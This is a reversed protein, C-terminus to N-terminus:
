DDAQIGGDIKRLGTQLDVPGVPDIGKTEIRADGLDVVGTDNALNKM